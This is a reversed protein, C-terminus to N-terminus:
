DKKPIGIRLTINQITPGTVEFKAQEFSPAAMRGMVNNSFGYQEKPIGLFNKDMKGNGNADVFIAIAYEGHPLMGNIEFNKPGVEGAKNVCSAEESENEVSDEFGAADRCISLFVVGPKDINLLNIKLNAEESYSKPVFAMCIFVLTLFLSKMQIIKKFIQSNM